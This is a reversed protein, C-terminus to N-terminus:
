TPSRDTTQARDASARVRAPAYHGKARRAAIRLIDSGMAVASQLLKVSSKASEYTVRVPVDILRLGLANAVILMEVDLTLGGLSLAAAIRRLSDHRFGKLGCQTDRLDLPLLARVCANFTLGVLHRRYLFGFLRVPVSYRSDHHRRNGVVMDATALGNLVRQVSERDYALDADLLVISQGRALPIATRIAAGKGAHQALRHVRINAHSRAYDDAKVFTDDASGDDIVLVEAAGEFWADVITLSSAIHSGENFCPIIISIQPSTASM